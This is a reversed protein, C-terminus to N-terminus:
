TTEGSGERRESHDCGGAAATLGAGRVLFIGLRSDSDLFRTFVLRRTQRDTLVRFL